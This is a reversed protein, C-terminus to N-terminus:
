ILSIVYNTLLSSFIIMYILKLSAAVKISVATSLVRLYHVSRALIDRSRVLVQGHPARVGHVPLEQHQDARRPLHAARQAQEAPLEAESGVGKAPRRIYLFLRCKKNEFWHFTFSNRRSRYFYIVCFGSFYKMSRYSKKDICKNSM